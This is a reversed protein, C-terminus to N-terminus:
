LLANVQTNRTYGFGIFREQFDPVKAEAVFVPEYGFVYNNTVDYAVKM